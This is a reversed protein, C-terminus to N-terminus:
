SPSLKDTWQNAFNNHCWGWSVSFMKIKQKKQMKLYIWDLKILFNDKIIENNSKWLFLNTKRFRWKWGRISSFSFLLLKQKYHLISFIIKSSVTQLLFPSENKNYRRKNWLRVRWQITAYVKRKKRWTERSNFIIRANNSDVKSRKAVIIRKIRQLILIYIYYIYLWWWTMM